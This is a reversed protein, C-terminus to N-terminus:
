AKVRLVIKGKLHGERSRQLATKVQELPLEEIVPPQLKDQDYLNAIHQLEKGNPSVFVYEAKINYQNALANDVNGIITVLTGGSKIIEYSAKLTKGGVCDYVIDIGNPFLARVKEAFNDKTYDIVVDAGLKKVYEHNAFSATTIVKAGALKAFQIAFSGVGGAGAHILVTQGNKIHATDYLSQWATLSSLPISAAQAFNLKQPKLAVNDADFCVFQAYTGAHMISNRCYAFVPDGPKLNKVDKGVEKVIGSVDWGLIIPFEHQMRTKLLGECVKWDVPNVGAYSVEIQVEKDNPQPTELEAIKIKDIDGFEEIFAAKM